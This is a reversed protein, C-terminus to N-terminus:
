TSATRSRARARRARVRAPSRAGARRARRLVRRPPAAAGRRRARGPRDGRQARGGRADRAVGAPAVPEGGRRAARRARPVARRDARPTALSDFWAREVKSSGDERFFALERRVSRSTASARPSRRRSIPAGRRRRRHRRPVRGHARAAARRAAARIDSLARSIAYSHHDFATKATSIRLDNGVYIGLLVLDPDSARAGGGRAHDRYDDINSAVIGFNYVEVPAGRAALLAEARAIVGQPRPVHAVFFSDGIAAVRRSAPDSRSRSSTTTTASRTRPSASCIRWSSARSRTSTSPTSSARRRLKAYYAACRARPSCSRPASTSSCRAGGRAARPPPRGRRARGLPARALAARAPAAGDGRVPPRGPARCGRAPHRVARDRVRAAEASFVIRLYRAGLFALEGARRARSGRSRPPGSGSRSRRSASRRSAAPRERDGHRALVARCRSQMPERRRTLPSNM